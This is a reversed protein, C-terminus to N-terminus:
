RSGTVPALAVERPTRELESVHDTRTQMSSFTPASAGIATVESFASNTPADSLPLRVKTMGDSVTSPAARVPVTYAVTKTSPTSFCVTLLPAELATFETFRVKVSPAWLMLTRVYITTEPLRTSPCVDDSSMYTPLSVGLAGADTVNLLFLTVHDATVSPSCPPYTSTGPIM